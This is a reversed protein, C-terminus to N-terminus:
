PASPRGCRTQPEHHVPAPPSSGLWMSASCSLPGSTAMSSACGIL